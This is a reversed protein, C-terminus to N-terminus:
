PTGASTVPEAVILPELTDSAVTTGPCFACTVKGVLAAPWVAVIATVTVSELPLWTLVAGSEPPSWFSVL